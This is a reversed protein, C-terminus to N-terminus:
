AKENENLFELWDVITEQDGIKKKLQSVHFVDHIKTGVPFQLRYAVSGVREKVMYPGFYKISLKQNSRRTVSLQKYPKLKIYVLDGVSFERDLRKKYALQKMRNKAKHLNEKLARLINEM